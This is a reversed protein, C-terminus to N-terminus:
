SPHSVMEWRMGGEDLKLTKCQWSSSNSEVFYASSNWNSYPFPFSPPMSSFLPQSCGVCEFHTASMNHQASPDMARGVVTLQHREVSSYYVMISINHPVSWTGHLKSGCPLISCRYMSSLFSPFDNCSISRDPLHYLSRSTGPLVAIQHSQHRNTLPPFQVVHLEKYGWEQLFPAVPSCCGGLRYTSHDISPTRLHLMPVLLRHSPLTNKTGAFSSKSIPTASPTSSTNLVMIVHYDLRTVLRHPESFSSYLNYSFFLTPSSQCVGVPMMELQNWNGLSGCRPQRSPRVARDMECVLGDNECLADMAENSNSNLNLNTPAAVGSPSTGGVRM